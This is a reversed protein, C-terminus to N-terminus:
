TTAVAVTAGSAVGVSLAIPIKANQALNQGLNNFSDTITVDGVGASVSDLEQDTLQRLEHSM